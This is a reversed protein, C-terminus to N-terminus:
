KLLRVLRKAMMREIDEPTHNAKCADCPHVHISPSESMRKLGGCSPCEIRYIAGVLPNWDVERDSGGHQLQHLDPWSNFVSM